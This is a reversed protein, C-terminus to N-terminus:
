KLVESYYIKLLNVQQLRKAIYLIDKSQNHYKTFDTNSYNHPKFNSNKNSNNKAKHSTSSSANKLQDEIKEEIKILEPTKEKVNTLDVTEM